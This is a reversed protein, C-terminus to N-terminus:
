MYIMFLSKEDHKGSNSTSRPFSACAGRWCVFIKFKSFFRSSANSRQFLTKYSRRKKFFAEESDSFHVLPMRLSAKKGFHATWTYIKPSPSYPSLCDCHECFCSMKSDWAAITLTAKWPIWGTFFVSSYLLKFNLWIYVTLGQFCHDRTLCM